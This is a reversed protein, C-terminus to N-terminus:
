VHDSELIEIIRGGTAANSFLISPEEIKETGYCEHVHGFLHLRVTHNQYMLWSYLASVGCHGRKPISYDLIQAPPSHTLLVDPRAGAVKRVLLRFQEDILPDEEDRGVEGAWEGTVFPIERFGAFRLGDVQVPGQAGVDHARAGAARLPEAFSTFDHNGQVTIVPRGALWRTLEKVISSGEPPMERPTLGWARAAEGYRQLLWPRMQSEWISGPKTLWLNQSKAEISEGRSINPIFDGTDVWVDFDTYQLLFRWNGHLDSTHLIKM